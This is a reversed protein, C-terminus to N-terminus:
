PRISFSHACTTRCTVMPFRSLWLTIGQIRRHTVVSLPALPSIIQTIVNGAPDNDTSTCAPWLRRGTTITCRSPSTSRATANTGFLYGDAQNFRPFVYCTQGDVYTPQSITILIIYREGYTNHMEAVVHCILNDCDHCWFIHKVPYLRARTCASTATRHHSARPVVAWRDAFVTEATYNLRIAADDIDVIADQDGFIGPVACLSHM